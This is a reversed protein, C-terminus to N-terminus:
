LGVLKIELSQRLFVRKESKAWEVNEETVKMQLERAEPPFYDILTRVSALFFLFCTLLYLSCTPSSSRHQISTHSASASLRATKAKAIQAMFTRSDTM